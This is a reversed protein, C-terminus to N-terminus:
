PTGNAIAKLLPIVQARVQDIPADLTAGAAQKHGGGGLSLALGAVDYGYKARMSISTQGELTEKFVIAVQAENIKALFSSLGSDTPDTAGVAALDSLRVVASIVGDELIVSPFVQKWLNFANYEMSELTRATIERLSAGAQMLRMAIELTRPVTNSTRFGLTDTVLGTLLPIAVESPITLQMSDLLDFIVETASVATPIVLHINGFMTNSIHHDLNIVVPSHARGYAGVLGTRAEDSADVSIMLDWAGETLVPQVTDVGTLFNLFSPVGEDVALDIRKSPDLSRLANGLGLLSGIADGDPHLHTVILISDAAAIAQAAGIWHPNTTPTLTSTM